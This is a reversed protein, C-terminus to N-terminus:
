ILKENELFKKLPGERLITSIDVQPPSKVMRLEFEVNDGERFLVAMDEKSERHFLCTGTGLGDPKGFPNLEIILCKGSEFDVMLDMVFDSLDILHKVEKFLQDVLCRVKNEQEMLSPFFIASFYQSVGTIKGAFVFARFEFEPKIPVWERLVIHQSWSTSAFSLALPLDDACVRDSTQLTEVVESASECKLCCISARVVATYIDNVSVHATSKKVELLSSITMELAKKEAFSSDKPSRSSLKAFVGRGGLQKIGADIRDRLHALSANGENKRQHHFVDVFIKAEEVTLDVLVTRFTWRELSSFWSELDVARLIKQLRKEEALANLTSSKEVPKPVSRLKVNQM